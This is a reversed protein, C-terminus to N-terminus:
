SFTKRLEEDSLDVATLQKGTLYEELLRLYSKFHVWVVPNLKSPPIGKFYTVGKLLRLKLAEDM